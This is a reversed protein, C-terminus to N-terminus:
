VGAVLLVAEKESDLGSSIAGAFFAFGAAGRPLDLMPFSQSFNEEGLSLVHVLSISHYRDIKISSQTLHKLINDSATDNAWVRPPDSNGEDQISRQLSCCLKLVGM